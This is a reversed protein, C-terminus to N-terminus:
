KPWGFGVPDIRVDEIELFPEEATDGPVLISAAVSFIVGGDQAHQEPMEDWDRIYEEVYSISGEVHYDVPVVLSGDKLRYVDLVEFSELDDFSRLEPNTLDHHSFRGVGRFSWSRVAREISVRISPKNEFFVEVPDCREDNREQIKLRTEELLALKPRLHKEILEKLGRCIDVSVAPTGLAELDRKLSVHLQGGQECFDRVNRTVFYAQTRNIKLFTLLSEWLVADRFGRQGERDFPPEHRLARAVLTTVDVGAMPLSQASLRELREKLRTRYQAISDAIDIIKTEVQAGTLTSLTRSAAAQDRAAEELKERFHNVTEEVVVEPVVLLANERGLFEEVLKWHAGSLTFDGFTETTDIIIIM